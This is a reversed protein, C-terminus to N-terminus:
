PAKLTPSADIIDVLAAFKARFLLMHQRTEEKHQEIFNPHYNTEIEHVAGAVAAAIDFSFFADDVADTSVVPQGMLDGSIEINLVLSKFIESAVLEATCENIKALQDMGIDGWSWETFDYTVGDIDVAKVYQQVMAM